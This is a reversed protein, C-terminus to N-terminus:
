RKVVRSTGRGDRFCSARHRRTPNGRTRNECRLGTDEPNMAKQASSQVELKTRFSRSLAHTGMSCFCLRRENLHRRHYDKCKTRKRASKPLNGPQGQRTCRCFISRCATREFFFATPPRAHRSPCSCSSAPREIPMKKSSHFTAHSRPLCTTIFAMAQHEPTACTGDHGVQTQSICALTIDKSLVGDFLFSNSAMELVKVSRLIATRAPAAHLASKEDCSIPSESDVRGGM